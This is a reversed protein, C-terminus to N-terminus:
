HPYDNMRDAPAPIGVLALLEIARDRAERRSLGLHERLPEMLQYGITFVPNLSTMPDQFIFGVEGGRVKRLEAGDLTLLDRGGLRATGSVIEAPPMPLLKMLSMMTVSKGSGSEGVVGLLEGPALRFSVGNVAFIKGGRFRFITRLESVELVPTATQAPTSLEV